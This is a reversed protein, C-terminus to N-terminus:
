AEPAPPIAQLARAPPSPWIPLEVTFTSGHGVSSSVSVRGGHAEVITRAIYLGLGLGAYHRTSVGREYREFIREQVEPTMGIGRDRVQLCAMGGVEYVSVEIPKGEGFKIANTLLNISLQEMRSADWYGIVPRDGQVTLASGSRSLDESLQAASERVVERLDILRRDLELRGAQIRSVDLLLGVLGGLRRLQRTSLALNREVQPTVETGLRRSLGQIALQLSTLPTRLEHSAVSLFEDRLRVAEEAAARARREDVLLRDRERQAGVRVTVDRFSWVRGVVRQDMRQPQSYCEFIRGDEFELVDFSSDRPHQVLRALKERFAAPHRLRDLDFPMGHREALERMREEPIGWTDAFRRNFQVVRGEIDVVLIADGTSELTAQLLSVSGRLQDEFRKRGTIETAIGCVAYPRGEGNHLPFKLSLYTHAVGGTTVTEEFEIARDERLAALDNARFVDVSEPLVPLYHDTKGKVEESGLRFLEDFARNALLYRGSADKVFIVAASNDIIEQLKARSEQLYAEARRRETNERELKAFLEATALAIAAQAAIVELAILHDQTFAGSVLNNELYLAAIVEVQSLIPLCLLSRPKHRRIYPDDAYPGGAGPEDLLVRERSRCVADAIAIPVADAAAPGPPEVLNTTVGTHDASASAAVVLERGRRVLLCGRDAGGQELAVELLRRAVREWSLEMSIAQSAKAVAMLDLEGPSTVTPGASPVRREALEPFRRELDAVKGEAGWAQYCRRAEVLYLAGAAAFGAGRCFRAALEYAIAENQVMDAAHAADVAREYHHLAALGEGRVRCLEAEILERKHLFNAPCTEAWVQFRGLEAELEGELATREAAPRLDCLAAATLAAYLHFEPIEMFSRSTWLLPRARAAAAYAQEYDGSLFRAQLKRIFHWCIALSYADPNTELGAVFAREDFGDGDFTSFHDTLGRLNLVLRLQTILVQEVMPYSARRVFPLAEECLRQVEPLPSGLSLALTVLNNQSYCAVALNGTARAWESAQQLIETNTRLPHSWHNVLAFDLYVKARYAGLGRVDVIARGLRGFADGEQYRGLRRGVVMGVMECASATAATLGRHISLEVTTLALLALLNEDTFLAPMLLTALLDELAVIVPDEALPLDVLSAIPRAGIAQRLVEYKRTVEEWAPHAPLDLGLRHLAPRMVEVAHGLHDLVTLLYVEVSAVAAEDQPRRARLHLARLQQQARDADGAFFTARAAELHLAFALEYHQEWATAPLIEVGAGLYTRATTHAAAAMAKRGARLALEAFPVREPPAILARGQNLQNVIEFIRDGVEGAPTGELLLRGIRLHLGPREAKDVLSYAAQQVRDHAFRYVGEGSTLTLLGQELAPLLDRQVSAEDAAAVKALTKLDITNGVCAALRLVRRAPEPLHAIRGVMFEAVDDSYAQEQIRQLDWRWRWEAADFALLGGRVLETVFQIVFFPNGATKDYILRALPRVEDVPRRVADSTFAVVNEVSLTGLVMEKVRVGAQSIQQITGALPHSVDVENERYAGFVLLHRTDPTTLLNRLLKLSAVDAWQLDDLFLVLPHEATGFATIFAHFVLRFREEAEIPPLPAIPPQPGLFQEMEPVIEAILRGNTGVADALRARWVTQHEESADLLDGMVRRFAQAFTSYPINRQHVDFKGALFIGRAGEISRLLEHVLVSKGLGSYGSVLALAPRGGSVTEDLVTLLAGLEAERGYLHQPIKLRDSVDLEGLAFPEIRGATTWEARARELDHRLGRASQYRNEPMKEMLRRVISAIVPPVGPVVDGASPVPRAVHAHVWGLPDHGVFPLKGTLMLFFVVGLSYLDSRSDVTRNMRGTQEPSMFPLTGEILEAPQGVPPQRPIRSALGFGYLRVEEMTQSVFINRPTVDKHVLGARHIQELAGAIATGVALFRGIEFPMGLMRELPVGEFDESVLAPLGEHMVLMLPRLVGPQDLVAAVELENRLRELERLQHTERGLVKLVVPRRDSRRVARYLTANEDRSLTETIAFAAETM